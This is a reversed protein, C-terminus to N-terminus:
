KGAKVPALTLEDIEVASRNLESMGDVLYEGLPAKGELLSIARERKRFRQKLGEYHSPLNDTGFDGRGLYMLLLLKYVDEDSLKELLSHLEVEQPPPPGSDEEESVVPYNPHRKPLETNWYDRIATALEVVKSLTESFKM